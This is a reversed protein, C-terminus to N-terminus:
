YCNVSKPKDCNPLKFKGTFVVACNPKCQTECRNAM